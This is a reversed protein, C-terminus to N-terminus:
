VTKKSLVLVVVTLLADAYICLDWFIEEENGNNNMEKSKQPFQLPTVQLCTLEVVRKTTKM